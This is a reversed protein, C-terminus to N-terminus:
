RNLKKLLKKEVPVKHMSALVNWASNADDTDQCLPPENKSRQEYCENITPKQYLAIGVGNIIDKTISVVEWCLAKTLQKMAEWIEVDEPLKQYIPTASWVFFGGPRLLRNLELLLKGCRACHVVDSTERVWLRLYQQSEKRLRLNFRLRMNM